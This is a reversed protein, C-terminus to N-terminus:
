EYNIKLVNDAIHNIQPNLLIGRFNWLPSYCEMARGKDLFESLIGTANQILHDLLQRGMEASAEAPYGCYTNKKFHQVSKAFSSIFELSKKIKDPLMLKDGFPLSDHKAREAEQTNAPLNEWGPPVLEPWLHLALSTEVFGAHMDRSLQELTLPNGPMGSVEDFTIKGAAIRNVVVSFLSVAAANFGATLRAAADELAAIHRPGGHFSSYALRAFGQKAFPRLTHYAVDRVVAAPYNVTGTHPVCDAAVPIPPMLVFSWGPRQAALAQVSKEALAAAEFLDQGMPLHPGHVELPSIIAIILTRKKDLSAFQTTTIRDLHFINQTGSMPNEGQIGIKIFM